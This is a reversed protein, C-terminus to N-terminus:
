SINRTKYPQSFLSLQKGRGRVQSFVILTETEVKDEIPSGELVAAQKVKRPILM